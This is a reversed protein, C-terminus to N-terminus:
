KISYEGIKILKKQENPMKLILYKGEFNHCTPVDFEAEMKYMDGDKALIKVDAPLVYGYDDAVDAKISKSNTNIRGSVKLKATQINPVVKDISFKLEKYTGIEGTKYVSDSYTITITKTKGDWGVEAGMSESIFGLPVFTRGGKVEPPVDLNVRYGNVFAYNIGIKLYVENAPKTASVVQQSSDWGVKTGFAQLIKTFPVLTRGNKIYPAVDFDLKKGNFVVKIEEQSGTGTSAALAPFTSLIILSTILVSVIFKKM